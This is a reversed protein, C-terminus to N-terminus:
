GQDAPPEDTPPQDPAPVLATTADVQASLGDVESQLASLDLTPNAAKLADIEAQIGADASTLTDKVEALKATVANIDDQTTAMTEEIRELSRTTAETQAVVFDWLNRLNRYVVFKKPWPWWTDPMWLPPPTRPM